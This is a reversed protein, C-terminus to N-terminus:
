HRPVLLYSYDSTDSGDTRTAIGGIIGDDTISLAQLLYWGPASTLTNLDTFVGDAFRIARGYHANDPPHTPTSQGVAVGAHNVSYLTTGKDDPFIGLDESGGQLTWRWAHAGVRGVLVGSANGGYVNSGRFGRTYVSLYQPYPIDPTLNRPQGNTWVTAYYTVQPGGSTQTSGLIVDNPLIRSAWGGPGGLTPLATPPGGTRWEWVVPKKAGNGDDSSGVILHDNLDYADSAFQPAGPLTGLDRLIENRLFFAHFIRTTMGAPMTSSIGITGIDKKRATAWSTAGGPLLPLIQVREKKDPMLDFFIAARFSQAGIGEGRDDLRVLSSGAGLSLFIYEQAQVDSAWVGLLVCWVLGLFVHMAVSRGKGCM